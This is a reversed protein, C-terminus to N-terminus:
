SFHLYNVLILLTGLVESGSEFWDLRFLNCASNIEKFGGLCQMVFDELNQKSFLSAKKDEFPWFYPSKPTCSQNVAVRLRAQPPKQARNGFSFLSCPCQESEDASAENWLGVSNMQM